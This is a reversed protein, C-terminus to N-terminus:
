NLIFLQLSPNLNSRNLFSFLPTSCTIHAFTTPIQPILVVATFSIFFWYLPQLNRHFGPSFPTPSSPSFLFLMFSIAYLGASSLYLESFCGNHTSFQWQSE